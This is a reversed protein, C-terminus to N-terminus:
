PYNTAPAGSRGPRLASLIPHPTSEPMAMSGASESELEISLRLTPPACAIPRIHLVCRVLPFRGGDPDKGSHDSGNSIPKQVGSNADNRLSTMIACIIFGTPRRTIQGLHIAARSLAACNVRRPFSPLALLENAKGQDGRSYTSHARARYNEITNRPSHALGM